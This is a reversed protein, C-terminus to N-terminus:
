SRLACLVPFVVATSLKEGALWADSGQLWIAVWEYFPKVPMMPTTVDM